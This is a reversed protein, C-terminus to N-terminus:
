NSKLSGWLLILLVFCRFITAQRKLSTCGTTETERRGVSIFYGLRGAMKTVQWKQSVDQSKTRGLEVFIVM